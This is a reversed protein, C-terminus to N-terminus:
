ELKWTYRSGSLSRSGTWLTLTLDLLSSFCTKLNFTFGLSWHVWRWTWSVLRLHDSSWAPGLLLQDTLPLLLFNLSYIYSTSHQIPQTWKLSSYEKETDRLKVEQERGEVERQRACKERILEWCRRRRYEERRWGDKRQRQNRLARQTSRGAGKYGASGGRLAARGALWTEYTGMFPGEEGVPVPRIALM